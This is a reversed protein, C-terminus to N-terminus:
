ATMRPTVGATLRDNPNHVSCGGFHVSAVIQYISQRSGPHISLPEDPQFITAPINTTKLFCVIIYDSAILFSLITM